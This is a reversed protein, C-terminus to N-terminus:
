HTHKRGKKNHKDDYRTFSAPRCEAPLLNYVILKQRDTIDIFQLSNTFVQASEFL